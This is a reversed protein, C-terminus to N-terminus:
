GARIFEARLPLEARSRKVNVWHMHAGGKVSTRRWLAEFATIRDFYAVSYQKIEVCCQWM